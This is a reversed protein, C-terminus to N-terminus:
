YQNQAKEPIKSFCDSGAAHKPSWNKPAKLAPPESIKHQESPYFSLHRLRLEAMTDNFEKAEPIDMYKSLWTQDVLYFLAPIVPNWNPQTSALEAPLFKRAIQTMQIFLRELEDATPALELTSLAHLVRCACSPHRLYATFRLSYTIYSLQETPKGQLVTKLMYEDTRDHVDGTLTTSRQATELHQDLPINLSDLVQLSGSANALFQAFVPEYHSLPLVDLFAEQMSFLLDFLMLQQSMDEGIGTRAVTKQVLNSPDYMDQAKDPSYAQAYGARLNDLIDFDCDSVSLYHVTMLLIYEHMHLFAKESPTRAPRGSGLEKLCQAEDPHRQLHTCYKRRLTHCDSYLQNALHKNEATLGSSAKLEMIKKNRSYYELAEKYLEGLPRDLWQGEQSNLELPQFAVTDKFPEDDSAEPTAFEPESTLNVNRSALPTTSQKGGAEAKPLHTKNWM